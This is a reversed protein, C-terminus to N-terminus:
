RRLLLRLSRERVQVVGRLCLAAFEEIEVELRHRLFAGRSDPQTIEILLCATAPLCLLGGRSRLQKKERLFRLCQALLFKILLITDIIVRHTLLWISDHDHPLPDRGLEIM